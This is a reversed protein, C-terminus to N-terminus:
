AHHSECRNPSIFRNSAYVDILKFVCVNIFLTSMLEYEAENSVYNSPLCNKIM